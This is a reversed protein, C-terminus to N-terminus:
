ASANAPPTPRQNEDSVLVKAYIQEKKCYGLREYLHGFAATKPSEFHMMMLRVAGRRKAEEEFAKLLRVGAQGRHEPIVYWFFETAVIDGTPFDPYIAGGIAGQFPPDGYVLFIGVGANLYGAVGKVFSEENLKGMVLGEAFFRRAGPLLYAAESPRLPRVSPM